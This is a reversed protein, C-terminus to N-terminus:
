RAPKRVIWVPMNDREDIIAVAVRDELVETRVPYDTAYGAAIDDELGALLEEIDCDDERGVVVRYGSDALQRLCETITM